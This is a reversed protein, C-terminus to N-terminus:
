TAKQKAALEDEEVTRAEVDKVKTRLWVRLGSKKDYM